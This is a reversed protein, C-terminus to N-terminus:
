EVPIHEIGGDDDDDGTPGGSAGTFGAVFGQVVDQGREMWAAMTEDEELAQEAADLFTRAARLMEQAAQRLGDFTPDHSPESM